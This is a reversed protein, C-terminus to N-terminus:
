NFSYKLLTVGGSFTETSTLTAQQMIQVEEFLPIGEGLVIPMVFLMLKDILNAKLMSTNLKGGGILWIDKGKELKLKKAFSVADESVFELYQHPEAKQSSFVFNQTDKYYDFGFHKVHEYTTRGMLTTDISKYFDAYGYDLKDPNPIEDLWKVDGDPRAIKGDISTATYLIIKRM